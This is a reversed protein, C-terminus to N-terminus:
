DYVDRISRDKAFQAGAFPCTTRIRTHMEHAWSVAADLLRRGVGQGRLNAAVETHDIIVLSANARSYTMEAVRKGDQEVFFAGRHGSEEHAIPHEM